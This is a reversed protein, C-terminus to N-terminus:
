PAQETPAAFLQNNVKVKFQEAFVTFARAQVSQNLTTALEKFRIDRAPSEKEEEADLPPHNINTVIALMQGGSELALPGAVGGRQHEFVAERLSAPINNEMAKGETPRKLNTVRLATLNFRDLVSQWEKPESSALQNLATKIEQVRAKTADRRLQEVVHERVDDAVSEYEQAKAPNITAVHVIVPTGQASIVLGSTEGQAMQFGQEAVTKTVDDTSTKALTNLADKLTHPTTEIGAKTVAEALKLGGALADDITGQLERLVNDRQESMLRKKIETASVKPQSKAAGALMEDTISKEVLADLQAAKLAVYEITRSEPQMYLVSKNKEYFDKLTSDDLTAPAPLPSITVIWADRTEVASAHILSRVPAPPTVDEMNMSARLFQSATENKIQKLAETETTNQADLMARFAKSNFSGDANQFAPESRLTKTLLEDNVYLGFKQMMLMVLKQQVLQQLVATSLMRTDIPTKGLAEIQQAIAARQRQFEGISIIENDVTAAYNTSGSSRFIDSIGWVAFSIVLFLLLIKSVFGSAFSRMSTMM